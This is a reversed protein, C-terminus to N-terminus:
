SGLKIDQVSTPNSWWIGFRFLIWLVILWVGILAYMAHTGGLNLEARRVRGFNEECRKNYRILIVGVIVFLLGTFFLEMAYILVLITLNALLPVQVRVPLASNQWAVGIVDYECFFRVYVCIYIYAQCFWTMKVYGINFFINQFDNQM